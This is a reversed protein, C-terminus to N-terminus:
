AVSFHRHGRFTDEMVVTTEDMVDSVLMETSDAEFGMEEDDGLLPKVPTKGTLIDFLSDEEEDETHQNESQEFRLIQEKGEPWALLFSHMDGFLLAPKKEVSTWIWKAELRGFSKHLPLNATYPTANLTDYFYLTPDEHSCQVLLTSPITPHWSLQKISSHQILVASASLKQLDWIWVTTPTSDDRTALITGDANFAMLGLGLKTTQSSPSDQAIPPAIPQQVTSYSRQSSASVQEQWVSSGPTLQITPTHDLFM